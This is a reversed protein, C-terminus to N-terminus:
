VLLLEAGGEVDEMVMARGLAMVLAVIGDIKETSKKKSLKINGAGDMEGAANSAMWRLVPNGGHALEGSLVLKLMEKCPASMSAFGQGFQTVEFGDEALQTQLQTSNWRDIAIERIDYIKGLENIKARIRDYDVVNGGTEEIWAEKQWVDYPVRDRRSRERATECPVWFFPLIANECVPFLLVFAAIDQTSSLDLGAICLEGALMNARDAHSLISCSWIQGPVDISPDVKGHCADWKDMPILRVDQETRINLDLRKFTNECAPIEQARRCEREMYEMSKSVGLNPNAKRWTEVDTWDDDRDAEYIAPLFTSDQIIGDRVKGAYDHKENCISGPREFDSTTIMVILPERRAGTSTLLADVLDRNPQTHLEDIVAGHTNWGHASYADSAVVRYTAYGTSEDLQISKAQGAYIKSRERLDDNQQVMGRAHEFVLSAQKYESAAGYVEAGPEEDQFLLYLIIGAALPTKGNKRAVFIFAERYRRLGTELNFWGFLNAIISREWPELIFPERAKAGKVHHLRTEFFDLAERAADSEFVYAEADAYPDYGPLLKLLTTWEEDTNPLPPREVKIEGPGQARRKERAEARRKRVLSSGRKILVDMPLPAPGPSVM